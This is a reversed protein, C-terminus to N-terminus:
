YGCNYLTHTATIEGNTIEHRYLTAEYNAAEKILEKEPMPEPKGTLIEAIEQPTFYRDGIIGDLCDFYYYIASANDAM